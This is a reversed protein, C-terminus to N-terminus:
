LQLGKTRCAVLNSKNGLRLTGYQSLSPSCLQNEHRFFEDMDGGRVQCSVYLQSFLSCNKKLSELQQKVKSVEKVPPCSFIPLKNKKVPDFLSKDKTDLRNQVFSQFQEQGTHEITKVTMVVKEDIIDRTDLALLDNHGGLISEGNHRHYLM